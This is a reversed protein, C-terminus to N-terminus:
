ISKTARERKLGLNAMNARIFGITDDLMYDLGYKPAWGFMRKAKESVGVRFRVDDKPAPVHKFEDLKEGNHVKSWVQKALDLMSVSVNGCINFDNNKVGNKIMLSTADAIDKAHTFTRVQKGDGFIEFPTQRSIAKYAFDPIVHSMGFEVSGKADVHPLEGSGVANFPRIIAYNLGTEERAGRVIFEGFLKQMGYNTLPVPQTLADEETVPRQVREYVMSSSFYYYVADPAGKLINDVTSTIMQTNEKAIRYPIKHFYGIGGILAAYGLVIDFGKFEKPTMDRVDKKVLKFNPDKYFDHEIAGYKSFNDVCTIEHGDELLRRVAYSGIFGSGGLALIRSM